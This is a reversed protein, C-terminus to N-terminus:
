RASNIIFETLYHRILADFDVPENNFRWTIKNFAGLHARIEHITASGFQDNFSLRAGYIDKGNALFGISIVDNSKRAFILRLSNRFLMFDNVTNSIKFFKIAAASNNRCRYENFKTLYAEARDRLDNMLQISAEELLLTPNLHGNINVIGSEDMNIEDLALSEVWGYNLTQYNENQEIMTFHDPRIVKSDLTLFLRLTYGKDTGGM